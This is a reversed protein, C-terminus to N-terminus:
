SQTVKWRRRIEPEIDTPRSRHIDIHMVQIGGNDYCQRHTLVLHIDKVTWPEWQCKALFRTHIPINCSSENSLWTRRSSKRLIAQCSSSVDEITEIYIYIYLTYSKRKLFSSRHLIFPSAFMRVFTYALPSATLFYCFINDGRYCEIMRTLIPARIAGIFLTM